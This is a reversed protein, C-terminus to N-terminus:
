ARKVRSALIYAYRLISTKDASIPFMGTSSINRWFRQKSRFRSDSPSARRLFGTSRAACISIRRLKSKWYRRIPINNPSTSVQSINAFIADTFSMTNCWLTITSCLISQKWYLDVCLTAMPKWTRILRRNDSFRRKEVWFSAVKLPSYDHSVNWEKPVDRNAITVRLNPLQYHFTDGARRCRTLWSRQQYIGQVDDGYCITSRPPDTPFQMNSVCRCILLSPVSNINVLAEM